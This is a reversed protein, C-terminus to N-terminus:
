GFEILEVLTQFFEATQEGARVGGGVHGLVALQVALV